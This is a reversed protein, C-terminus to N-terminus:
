QEAFAKVRAPATITEPTTASVKDGIIPELSSREAIAPTTEGAPDISLNSPRRFAYVRLRAPVRRYRGTTTTRHAITVITITGEVHKRLALESRRFILTRDEGDQLRRCVGREILRLEECLLHALHVPGKRFGRAHKLERKWGAPEASHHRFGQLSRVFDVCCSSTSTIPGSECIGPMRAIRNVGGGNGPPPSKGTSRTIADAASGCRNFSMALWSTIFAKVLPRKM